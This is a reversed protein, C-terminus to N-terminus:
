KNGLTNLVKSNIYCFINPIKPTKNNIESNTRLYNNLQNQRCLKLYLRCQQRLNVSSKCSLKCLIKLVNVLVVSILIESM